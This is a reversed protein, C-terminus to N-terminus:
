REILANYLKRYADVTHLISFNKEAHRKNSMSKSNFKRQVNPYHPNVYLVDPFKLDVHQSINSLVLNLGVSAAELVSIPMGESFSINYFTNFKSLTSLVETHSLIGGYSVNVNADIASLVRDRYSLDHKDFPGYITLYKEGSSFMEILRLVNKEPSIRGIFVCKTIDDSCVLSHKEIGNPICHLKRWFVIRSFHRYDEKGVFVVASVFICALIDLIYFAFRYYWAWRELRWACGRISHVSKAKTFISFYLSHPIFTEKHFHIININHSKILERIARIQKFIGNPLVRVFESESQRWEVFIFSEIGEILQIIDHVSKEVGGHAPPYNKPGVHLIKM